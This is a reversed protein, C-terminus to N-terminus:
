KLKKLAPLGTKMEIIEYGAPLEGVEKDPRVDRAFFYMNYKKGAKTVRENAHLYYTTGKSNVKSFAM